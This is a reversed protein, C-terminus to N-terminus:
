NDTPTQDIHDIVLVAVKRKQLELKLGLQKEVAELLSVAGDPDSSQPVAASPSGPDGGRGGGGRGARGVFGAASFSLTFDYGGELGTADLVPSHIYGNALAQLREAFQAMTMNQCTILRSLIPNTIRVDKGDPAPGEEFRTRSNPDAKKLKPKVALLTYAPIVRDENHVALHFREKLLAQLMPWLADPDVDGSPGNVPAKAIIDFRDTDTFKPAGMLMDETINWTQEILRKLTIGNIVVRGGRQIRPQMMMLGSDANYPKVDAVEFETAPPGTKLIDMVGPVNDTPKPNVGDVVIVPLPVKAPSLKLGLQKEVADFITIAGSGALPPGFTYKLSYDWAGKLETQDVVQRNLYPATYVLREAFAQMTMNTCTEVMTPIYPGNGPSPQPMQQDCQSPKSDDARKLTPHKGATLVFAAVPQTDKHVVLKFRDALLAQLMARQEDRTAKARMKAFVDFRYLELWNPGGIVNEARVGYAATIMDVLNANRMEYIDDHIATRGRFFPRRANASVHVDAAEFTSQGFAVGFLLAVLVRAIM